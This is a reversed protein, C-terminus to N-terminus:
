PDSFKTVGDLYGAYRLGAAENIFLVYRYQRFVRGGLTLMVDQVADGDWDVQQLEAVCFSRSGGIGPANQLPIGLASWLRVEYRDCDDEPRSGNVERDGDLLRLNYM